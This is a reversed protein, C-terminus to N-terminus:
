GKPWRIVRIDRDGALLVLAYEGDHSFDIRRILPPHGPVVARDPQVNAAARKVEAPDTVNYILGLHRGTSLDWAHASAEGLTVAAADWPYFAVDAIGTPHHELVAGGVDTGLRGKRVNWTRLTTQRKLGEKLAAERASAAAGADRRVSESMAVGAEAGAVARSAGRLVGGTAVGIVGGVAAGILAAALPDIGGADAKPPELITGTAAYLRGGTSSFGMRLPLQPCAIADNGNLLEREMQGARLDWLFVAGNDHAAAMQDNVLCFEFLDGAVPFRGVRKWPDVRYIRADPKNDIFALHEGDPSLALARLRGDIDGLEILNRAQFDTGGQARFDALYLRTFGHMRVAVAARKGGDAVALRVHSGPAFAWTQRPEIDAGRWLGLWGDDSAGVVVDAARASCFDALKWPATLLREVKPNPQNPRYATSGSV